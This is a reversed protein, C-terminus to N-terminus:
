KGGWVGSRKKPQALLLTVADMMADIQDDRKHSDNATFKEHEIIFDNLFEAREPLYVYGSELYNVADLARTYKDINRQIAKVPIHNNIDHKLTQILGTGSSKDEIAIYRLRGSTQTNSGSHKNCFATAIALLAPAEWKGTVLDVLYAKGEFYGWCEFVSNDNHEKTKQATDATIILYEFAPSVAYYRWFKTKFIQGGRPSPEQMYQGSFIYPNKQKMRELDLLNHKLPWLPAGEDSLVPIKLLTWELGNGRELDLLFGPLDNESLRQGIIIIPTKKNNKRSEVSDLFWEIVTEQMITSSAESAKAADDISIMGGFRERGSVGAGFGTISGGVSTSFVVGGNETAFHDKAKMDKKLCTNPFIKKYIPSQLIERVKTMNSAALRKSYSAHIYNSDSELGLTWATFMIIIETKGYRPPVNIILNTVEGIFVRELM